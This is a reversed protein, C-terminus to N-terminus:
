NNKKGFINLLDIFLNIIDLYINISAFIYEDPDLQNRRNSGGCVLQIDYILYLSFIFAGCCNIIIHYINDKIFIGFISAIILITLLSLLSGRSTTFDTKTVMAYIGLVICTSVTLGCVYVISISQYQTTVLGVTYSVALTFLLLIAYNIPYKKCLERIFLLCLLTVFMIIVSIVYLLTQHPGLVLNQVSTNTMFLYSVITTILLQISVIGFVKKIFGNRILKNNISFYDLNESDSPFSQYSHGEDINLKINNDDM